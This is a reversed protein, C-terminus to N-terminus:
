ISIIKARSGKALSKVGAPIILLANACVLSYMNGSGQHQALKAYPLGDKEVLEVRLYSERGDSHVEEGLVAEGLTETFARGLLKYIIPRIFIRSSVYASVPNGPLGIFPINQNGFSGFTLPKGPRMNVKWFNLSGNETVVQKVFDYVGLSVGATSVIMDAHMEVAKQLLAQVASYTDAAVGLELVNAGFSQLLLSISLSNIDYVQGDGLTQGPSVLEDGSSFLAITPKPFSYIHTIGMGALFGLDHPKLLHGSKLVVQGQRIDQGAPRVNQGPQATQYIEVSEPLETRNYRDSVSTLEVPIVADAGAPLQAGTMIRAAQGREINVQPKRGAPIDAVVALHVPHNPDAHGCDQAKVAFGDMSSNDFPPSDMPANIDTALVCGLADRLEIRIPNKPEFQSLIRQKAETVSLLTQNEM